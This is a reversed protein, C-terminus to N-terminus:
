KRSTICKVYLDEIKKMNDDWSGIRKVVALQKESIDMRLKENGLLKVIKDALDKPNKHEYAYPNCYWSEQLVSKGKRRLYEREEIMIPLGCAMAELNAIGIGAGVGRGADAADVLMDASAYYKPMEEPPIRGMMIANKEVNLNKILKRLESEMVGGGLIVFKVDPLEGIVYPMSKILVDVQYVPSWANVSLVFHGSKVLENRFKESRKSPNFASFDVGWQNLVIKDNKIRKEILMSKSDEDSVFIIDGKKLTWKIIRKIVWTKTKDEIIDSGWASLFLPHFGSYAAWTGYGLVFHGHVIDPKMEQIIRKTQFAKKMFPRAGLKTSLMHLKVGNIEDPKDSILHLEHGREVFWRAWKKVHISTADGVFCIKMKEDQRHEM